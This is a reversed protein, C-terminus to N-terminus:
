REDDRREKKKRYTETLIYESYPMPQKPFKKFALCMADLLSDTRFQKTLVFGLKTGYLRKDYVVVQWIKCRPMWRVVSYVNDLMRTIQWEKNKVSWHLYPDEYLPNTM